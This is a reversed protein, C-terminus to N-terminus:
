LQARPPAENAQREIEAAAERYKFLYAQLLYVYNDFGLRRMVVLVDEASVTKRREALCRDGAESSVFAIFEGVCEEMLLKAERSVKLREDLVARMIKGVNSLPLREEREEGGSEEARM